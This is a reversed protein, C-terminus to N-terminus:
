AVRRDDIDVPSIPVMAARSRQMRQHRTYRLLLILVAIAAISKWDPTAAALLTVRVRRATAAPGYTEYVPNPAEKRANVMEPGEWGARAPEFRHQKQEGQNLIKSVDPKLPVAIAIAATFVILM